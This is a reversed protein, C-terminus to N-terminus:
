KVYDTKCLIMGGKSYCSTGVEGLRVNCCSCKLCNVHWYQDLALLLFRDLIKEGCGGCSRIGGQLCRGSVFFVLVFNSSRSPFFNVPAATQFHKRTFEYLVFPFCFRGKRAEIKRTTSSARKLEVSCLINSSVTTLTRTTWKIKYRFNWCAKGYEHPRTTLRQSVSDSNPLPRQKNFCSPYCRVNNLVNM